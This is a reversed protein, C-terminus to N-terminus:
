RETKEEKENDINSDVGYCGGVVGDNTVMILIIKKRDSEYM